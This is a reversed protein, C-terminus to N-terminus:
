LKLRARLWSSVKELAGPDMTTELTAFEELTGIKAPQLLHNLGPLAEITVDPNKGRALAARIAALNPEALVQLDLTGNLALVPCRVQELAPRPDALIFGRGAPSAVQVMANTIATDRAQASIKGGAGALALTADVHETVLKRMEDDSANRRAAAIFGAQSKMTLALLEPSAGKARLMAETQTLTVQEGSVGTGALLVIFALEPAEGKIAAVMPALTGGESHGILGMRASDIEPQGALWRLAALTDQVRGDLSTAATNGGSGGVGRDDLRLVGIGARTLHDALVWFPKHGAITEDRDQAGTGTLLLAAPHKGAGPPLTLTGALVTGGQGAVQVERQQYPFPPQPNQPRQPGASVTEGPKLRMMKFPMVSGHQHLTGRLIREGPVIAVEFKGHASAPTGPLALTFAMRDASYVVDTLETPPLSQAPIALRAHPQAGGTIVVEVELPAGGPVEIRGGWREEVAADVGSGSGSGSGTGTGSGAGAQKGKKGKCGVVLVGVVVVGLLWGTPRMGRM